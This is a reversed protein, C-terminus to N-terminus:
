TNTNDSGNMNCNDGEGDNYEGNKGGNRNKM